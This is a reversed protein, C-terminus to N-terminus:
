KKKDKELFYFIIVTFIVVGLTIGIIMPIKNHKTTQAVSRNSDCTLMKRQDETFYDKSLNDIHCIKGSSCVGMCLGCTEKSSSSCYYYALGQYALTYESFIIAYSSDVIANVDVSVIKVNDIQNRHFKTFFDLIDTIGGFGSSLKKGGGLYSTETSPMIMVNLGISSGIISVYGSSKKTFRGLFPQNGVTDLANIKSFNWNISTGDNYKMTYPLGTYLANIDVSYSSSNFTFQTNVNASTFSLVNSKNGNNTLDFTFGDNGDNMSLIFNGNSVQHTFTVANATFDTVDGSWYLTNTGSTQKCLVFILDPTTTSPISFGIKSGLTSNYNNPIYSVLYFAEGPTIIGRCFAM